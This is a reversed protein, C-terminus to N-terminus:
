NLATIDGEIKAVAYRRYGEKLNDKELDYGCISLETGSGDVEEVRVTRVAGPKSGGAYKFRVVKKLLWELGSAKEAWTAFEDLLGQFLTSVNHRGDRVQVLVHPRHTYPVTVVYSLRRGDLYAADYNSLRCRVAPSIAAVFDAAAEGANYVATGLKPWTARLVGAVSAPVGKTPLFVHFEGDDGRFTVVACDTKSVLM